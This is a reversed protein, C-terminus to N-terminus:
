PIGVWRPEVMGQVGVGDGRSGWGTMGYVGAGGVCGCRSEWGRAGGGWRSRSRGVGGLGWCGRSYCGVVVKM